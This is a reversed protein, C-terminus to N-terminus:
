ENLIDRAKKDNQKQLVANYQKRDRGHLGGINAPQLPVFEKPMRLYLENKGQLLYKDSKPMPLQIKDKNSGYAYVINDNNIQPITVNNRVPDLEPDFSVQNKPQQPWVPGVSKPRERGYTSTWMFQKDQNSESTNDSVLAEKEGISKVPKTKTNEDLNVIEVKSDESGAPTSYSAVFTPKTNPVSQFSPATIKTQTGLNPVATSTVTTTSTASM